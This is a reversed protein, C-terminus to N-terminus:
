PYQDPKKGSLWSPFERNRRSETKIPQINRSVQGNRRPQGIKNAYLLECHERERERKKYKQPIMTIKEEKM